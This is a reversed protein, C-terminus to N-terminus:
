NRSASRASQAAREGVRVFEFADLADRGGPQARPQRLEARTSEGVGVRVAERRQAGARLQAVDRGRRAARGCTFPVVYQARVGDRALPEPQEALAERPCRRTSARWPAGRTHPATKEPAHAATRIARRGRTSPGYNSPVVFLRRDELSTGYVSSVMM